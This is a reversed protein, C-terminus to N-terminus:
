STQIEIPPNLQKKTFIAIGSGVGSDSKSGDTYIELTYETNKNVKRIEATDAPHPWNELPMPLDLSSGAYEKKKIANYLAATEEIQITIPRLGTVLCLAENSTTRFAKAIRINILRQVRNYKTQNYKRALADIWVPSGYSLLPIIAGKYIIKLAEHNLGGASKRLDPYLM